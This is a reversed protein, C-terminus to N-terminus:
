PVLPGGETFILYDMFTQSYGSVPDALFLVSVESLRDPSYVGDGAPAAPVGNVLSPLDAYRVSVLQWGSGLGRLELSFVDESGESFSGDQNDDEKFQFLVIENTIGEPVNLMVNFYLSAPDPSLDFTNAGYATAPFDLLGILFDWDVAGGMDYYSTGQGAIVNDTVIFSMNAGSQIFSTWDSNFGSEFDTLLFGEIFRNSIAAITDFVFYDESAVSLAIACDEDKFLPIETTTGNWRANTASLESSFDTIIKRAGTELGKIELVWEVEKSFLASFVTQEGNEFDISRNSIELEQLVVFDGYINDLSPGEFAPDDRECGLILLALSLGFLLKITKM